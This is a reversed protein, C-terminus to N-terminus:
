RVVFTGHMGRSEYDAIGCRFRYTGPTTLSITVKRTTGASTPGTEGLAKGDPGFVELEHDAPGLNQLDFEVKQGASATFGDIGAHAYDHSQLVM